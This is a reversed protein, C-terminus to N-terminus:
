AQVGAWRALEPAPILWKAIPKGDVKPNVVALDGSRVARRIVDVSVGTADAAEHANYALKSM